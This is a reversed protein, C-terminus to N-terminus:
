VKGKKVRLITLLKRLQDNEYWFSMWELEVMQYITYCIYSTTCADLKLVCVDKAGWLTRWAQKWDMGTGIGTELFCSIEIAKAKELLKMYISDCSVYYKTNLMKWKAHKQPLGLNNFTDSTASGNQQQM